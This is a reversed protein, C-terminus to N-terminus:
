KDSAKLTKGLENKKHEKRRVHIWHTHSIHLGVLRAILVAVYLQGIVAEMSAFGKAVKSLPIIDGYGLTTITIFSFYIFESFYLRHATVAQDSYELGQLFYFSNPEAIEIMTYVMALSIAILVYASVAGYIKDATVREFELVHAIISFITISFFCIELFLGFLLLNTNGLVYNFWIIISALVALLVSVVILKGTASIIVLGAILLFTFLVEHITIYAPMEQHFFPFSFLLILLTTLFVLM